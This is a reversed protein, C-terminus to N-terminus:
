LGFIDKSTIRNNVRSPPEETICTAHSESMIKMAEVARAYKPMVDDLSLNGSLLKASQGYKIAEKVRKPVAIARSPLVHPMTPMTGDFIDEAADRSGIVSGNLPMPTAVAVGNEPLGTRNSGSSSSWSFRGNEIDEPSPVGRQIWLARRTFPIMGEHVWGKKNREETFAQRCASIFCPMFQDFVLPKYATYKGAISKKISTLTNWKNKRWRAKLKKFNITDEGQLAFSLNPVRELIEMGNAIAYKVVSYALYTGVGDCVIVGQQGHHTGRPKPYSLVLHLIEKVCLAYLDENVSGKANSIYRWALGKGDKNFITNSVTHPALVLDFSDGSAFVNFVPPARGDGLRGRCAWGTKLSETVVATGDDDM